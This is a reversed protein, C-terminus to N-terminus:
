VTLKSIAEGYEFVFLRWEFRKNEKKESTIKIGELLTGTMPVLIGLVDTLVSTVLNKAIKEPSLAAKEISIRLDEVIEKEIIKKVNAEPISSLEDIKSRFKDLSWHCRLKEMASFLYTLDIVGDPKRFADLTLIPLSHAELVSDVTKLHENASPEVTGNAVFKLVDIENPKCVLRAELNQSLCVATDMSALVPIFDPHDAAFPGAIKYLSSILQDSNEQPYVKRLLNEGREYNDGSSKLIEEPAMFRVGLCSRLDGLLMDSLGQEQNAPVYIDDFLLSYPLLDNIMTLIARDADEQLVKHFAELIEASGGIQGGRAFWGSIGGWYHSGIIAKEKYQNM